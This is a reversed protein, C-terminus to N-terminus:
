RFVLEFSAVGVEELTALMTEVTGDEKLCPIFLPSSWEGLILPFNTKSNESSRALFRFLLKMQGASRPLDLELQEATVECSSGKRVVGNSQASGVVKDDRGFELAAITWSVNDYVQDLARLNFAISKCRLLVRVQSERQSESEKDRIANMQAILLRERQQFRTRESEWLARTTAIENEFDSPDLGIQDVQLAEDMMPTMNSCIDTQTSSHKLIGRLEATNYRVRSDVLSDLTASHKLTHAIDEHVRASVSSRHMRSHFNAHSM